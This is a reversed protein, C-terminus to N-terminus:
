AYAYMVRDPGSLGVAVFKGDGYVCGRWATVQNTPDTIETWGSTGDASYMIRKTGSNAVAVFNGAGYALGRWGSPATTQIVSTWTIGDASYMVQNSGNSSVAVFKGDAYTISTWAAPVIGDGTSWSIGDASYVNSSSGTSGSGSLAVFKNDGYAVIQLRLNGPSGTTTWNIADTSYMIKPGETGVVVFKGDVGPTGGYTIGAWDQGTAAVGSWNIGDTSRAVTTGGFEVAVFMGDGYTVCSWGSVAPPAVTVNDWNIGDTSYMIRNGSGNIGVAVYKGGGYAIELWQVSVNSARAILWDVPAFSDATLFENYGSYPSVAPTGDASSYRVRSYYAKAADLQTDTLPYSVLNTTDGTTNVVATYIAANPPETTPIGPGSGQLAPATATKNLKKATDYGPETVLWRGTSSSLTMTSGSTSNVTGSAAALTPGTVTNGVTWTGGSSTTIQNLSSTVTTVTVNGSLSGTAVFSNADDYFGLFAYGDFGQIKFSKVLAPPVPDLTDLGWGSATTNSGSTVTGNQNTWELSWSSGVTYSGGRMQTVASFDVPEPFTFTISNTSPTSRAIIAGFGTNTAGAGNFPDGATYDPLITATYTVAGAQVVDGARLNALNTNNLFTLTTGDFSDAYQTGTVQKGNTLFKGAGYQVNDQGAKITPIAEWYVGDYSWSASAEGVKSNRPQAVFANGGGAVRGANVPVAGFSAIATWSIGDSSTM